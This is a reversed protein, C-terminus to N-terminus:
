PVGWGVLTTRRYCNPITASELPAARQGVSANGVEFKPMVVQPLERFFPLSRM